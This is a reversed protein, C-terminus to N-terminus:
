QEQCREEKCPRGMVWGHYRHVGSLPVVRCVRGAECSDVRNKMPVICHQRRLEAALFRKFYCGRKGKTERGKSFHPEAETPGGM